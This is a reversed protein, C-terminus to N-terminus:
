LHTRRPHWPQRDGAAKRWDSKFYHPLRVGLGRRALVQYTRARTDDAFGWVKADDVRQIEGNSSRM